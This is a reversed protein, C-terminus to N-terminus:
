AVAGKRRRRYAGGVGFLGTGLLAITVPEPTVNVLYESKLDCTPFGPDYAAPNTFCYGLQDNTGVAEVFVNDMQSADFITGISFNFVATAGFGCTNATTSYGQSLPGSSCGGILESGGAYATAYNTSNFVNFGTETTWTVSGSAGPGTMTATNAGNMSFLMPTAFNKGAFFIQFLGSRSTNDFAYGSGQLNTVAITIGTGTHVSGTMIPTTGISVSHCSSFSGPTCLTWGHITQAGAGRAALPFGVAAALVVARHSLRM